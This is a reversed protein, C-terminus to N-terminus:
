SKRLEKVSTAMKFHKVSVQGQFEIEWLMAKFGDPVLLVEESNQIERVVVFRGDAWIRVILYQTAPNYTQNQDTNRTGLTIQVEPPVEYIIQFAKFSAPFAMRFQKSKWTWDWLHTTGPNGIPPNWQMVTGDSLLGFLQGSIIDFYMNKVQTTFHLYTFPTNKDEKDVVLGNLTLGDPDDSVNTIGTGKVFAVYSLGYHGAAWNWPQLTNHFEKEYVFETISTTGSSNLLIIGNPSAYYAGEGSSVISGRGICPENASIVGITMTDPTVGTAIFPAGKCLINLSAGNATLGVVPYDVTLAYSAPWAHPLYAASFWIERENSWGAAIGNAMMVVGQLDAPPATYLESTLPLNNIIQQATFSDSYNIVGSTWPFDAVQYYSANGAADTVTRYLRVKALTRGTTIGAAPAPIIIQWTGTPNGTGTSPQSAPGEEGYTSVYTYVYAREEITNTDFEIVDGSLVGAGAAATDSVVTTGTISSVTASTPFPINAFKIQDGAAVGSSGVVQNLTVTTPSVATVLSGFIIAGSNTTDTATMGVLVGTTNSFILIEASSAAALTTASATLTMVPAASTFQIVDGVLSSGTANNSMTIINVGYSFGINTVTTGAPIVHTTLDTILMGVSVGAVSNVGITNNGVTSPNSSTTNIITKFNITDGSNVTGVVNQSLTVQNLSVAAVTTGAAIASPNTADAVGIGVPVGSANTFTLINPISPTQATTTLTLSTNSTDTISMGVDVGATNAFHLTPDGIPTPANTPLTVTAAAATATPATAPTPIGLLLMPGLTHTTPDYTRYMPVQTANPWDPNIGTSIYDESPFFYYRNWQDGVVPNRIAAMFPDPFELWKSTTFNPPTDDTEPIRYVQQTDSYLMTYVQTAHRFGRVAGKYVWVNKCYQANRDPLLLADRLPMMSCFDQITIVSM